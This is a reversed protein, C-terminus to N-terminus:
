EEIDGTIESLEERLESNVLSRFSKDTIYLVGMKRFLGSLSIRKPKVESVSDMVGIDLNIGYNKLSM